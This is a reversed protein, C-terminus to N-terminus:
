GTPSSSGRSGRRGRPLEEGVPHAAGGGRGGALARDSAARGRSLAGRAPRGRPPPGVGSRFMEREVAGYAFHAVAIRGDRRHPALATNTTGDLGIYRDSHVRRSRCRLAPASRSLRPASPASVSRGSAFRQGGGERGRGRAGEGAGASPVGLPGRMLYRWWYAATTGSWNNTIRGDARKYWSKGTKVRAPRELVAQLETNYAQMAEPRVDIWALDREALARLCDLVYGVQCEIMFIISNHGLDHQPRPMFLNPLGVTLGLYAEARARWVDELVRGDPGEIRM